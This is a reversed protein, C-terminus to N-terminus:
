IAKFPKAKQKAIYQAIEVGKLVDPFNEDISLVKKSFAIEMEEFFKQRRPSGSALIIKYGRTDM